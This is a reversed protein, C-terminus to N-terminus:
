AGFRSMKVNKVYKFLKKNKKLLLLKIGIVKSLNACCHQNFGRPCCTAFAISVDVDLLKLTAMAIHGVGSLSDAHSVRRLFGRHEFDVRCVASLTDYHSLNPIVVPQNM